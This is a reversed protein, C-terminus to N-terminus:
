KWGFINRLFNTIQNLLNGQEEIKQKQEALQKELAAIKADNDTTPTPVTTVVTTQRTTITTTPSTTIATTYQTTPITTPVTTITATPLTTPSSTTVTSNEVSFQLETFIDNHPGAQMIAAAAEAGKVTRDSGIFKIIKIGANGDPLLGWVWDDILVKQFANATPYPLQLLVYYTGVPLTNTISSDLVWSFAGTSDPNVTYRNAYDESMIWIAIGQSPHGTATGTIRLTDEKKIISPSVTASVYPKLLNVEIRSYKATTLHGVDNPTSVAYIIYSGPDLQTTLTSWKWSWTNDLGVDVSQFTSAVGDTVSYIRPFETQIQSGLPKMNPGTLFLYTNRTDTNTGYFTIDDGLYYNGTGSTLITVAPTGTTIATTPITTPVTTPTPTPTLTATPTVTQPAFKQIRYNLSDAVYVNGSSDVAVGIPQFFQGDGSGGTGWKTLFTGTSSFKQIRNIGIETNDTDTVYVNGSSDVAVGMPNSFQGDGSGSTGWKMLFTGTSSFKQIRQNRNDAVYVNGSSDVAVGIPLNFQGDGSGLSGWKTLFTGTSSFKQIQHNKSDAVYVNGSSDVAVDWPNRFQGDGSGLSGWKTLLTGTSSFKRIQQNTFDTVYANGSSDVAIAMHYGGPTWKTLFIGTSSFKQILDMPYGGAVYVNGSSDVAIGHLEDFQGEQYGRTGWKTVFTYTEAAQVGQMIVFFLFICLIVKVSNKVISKGQMFNNSM